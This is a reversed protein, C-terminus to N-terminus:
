AGTFTGSTSSADLSVYSDVTPYLVSSFHQTLVAVSGFVAWRRVSTVTANAFLAGAPASTPSNPNQNASALNDTNCGVGGAVLAAALLGRWIKTMGHEESQYRTM